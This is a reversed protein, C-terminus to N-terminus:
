ICLLLVKMADKGRVTLTKQVKVNVELSVSFM